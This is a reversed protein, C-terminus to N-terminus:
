EAYISGVFMLFGHHYLLVFMSGLILNVISPYLSCFCHVDEFLVFRKANSSTSMWVTPM